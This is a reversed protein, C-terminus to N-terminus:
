AAVREIQRCVELVKLGDALPCITPTGDRVCDLFHAMEASYMSTGLAQPRRASARVKMGDPGVVEWGRHYGGARPHLTVSWKGLSVDIRGGHHKRCRGVGGEAGFWLALDIEHSMELLPDGDRATGPWTAMDCYSSLKGGVPRLSRMHQATSQFRLNYGVQNVPLDLAALERWRPVQELTGLPKEVFFPLRRAVAEEVWALHSDLPTAIVLADLGSFPLSDGYRAHPYAARAKEIAETSVDMAVVDAGLALLNGLHRRGISGLGVLGVRM